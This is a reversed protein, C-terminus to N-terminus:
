GINKTAVVAVGTGCVDALVVQGAQVPAPVAAHHLARAVELVKEKPVEGQTRVPVVPLPGGLVRVTGTVTREPHVCEKRAYADGRPCTNGTVATVVGDELTARLQCGMPCGICTLERAGEPLEERRLTFQEMEGPTLIRKPVRRLLKGDTYVCLAAKQYPQGVRFRM